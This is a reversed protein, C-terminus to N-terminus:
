IGGAGSPPGGYIARSEGGVGGSEDVTAGAAGGAGAADSTGASGGSSAGSPPAGYVASGGFSFSGGSSPSGASGGAGAAPPGGYVAVAGGDDSDCAILATVGVVSAGFAFTAARGLRMRPMAPPAIHALSVAAACFPCQTETKRIHRQCEPCPTLQSM